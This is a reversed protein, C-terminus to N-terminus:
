LTGGDNGNRDINGVRGDGIIAELIEINEVVDDEIDCADSGDRIERLINLVSSVECRSIQLM